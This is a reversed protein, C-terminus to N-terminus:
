VLITFKEYHIVGGKERDASVKLKKEPKRLSFVGKTKKRQRQKEKANWYAGDKDCKKM